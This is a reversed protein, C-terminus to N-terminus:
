VPQHEPRLLAFVTKVPNFTTVPVEVFVSNWYAMGGNWLGPLELAKLDRGNQSKRTIFGSDPDRFRLLDFPEGQFDRVACVFDTPSFHTAATLIAQQAPDAPNIQATEVVQQIINGQRDEVWFPGGGPEDQNKVMGCVRLPRNLRTRLFATQERRTGTRIAPPAPTCFAQEIFHFIEALAEGSLRGRSLMELYRFVRQQLLVLYGGLIKKYRITDAKLRDPVVNDINKIFVIDGQLDNLNELLAGHGGPRFVIRGDADRFPRNNLDVAVTDTSPKQISFTIEFHTGDTEYRGRVTDLHLRVANQLEPETPVTFHIRACGRADRTYAVAEALHEEFPTRSGDQYRHFKILGKPLNGYNLGEPLLLATLIKRYEGSRIANELSEGRQAFVSRLDEYFAFRPLNDIFDKVPKFTADNQQAKEVVVAWSPPDALNLVSQLMKFMRSAAGSAPVFKMVRGAAQAAAFTEMLRRHEAAPLRIIGDGIICARNLRVYPTGKKFIEIQALVVEVTLGHTKITELDEPTFLSANMIINRIPKKQENGLQCCARDHIM